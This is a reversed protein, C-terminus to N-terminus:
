SRKYAAYEALLTRVLRVMRLHEERVDHQHVQSRLAELASHVAALGDIDGLKRPENKDATFLAARVDEYLALPDDQELALSLKDAAKQALAKGRRLRQVLDGLLERWA